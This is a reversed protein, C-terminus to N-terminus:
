PEEKLYKVLENIITDLSKLYFRNEYSFGTKRFNLVLCSGIFLEFQFEIQSCCQYDIQRIRSCHGTHSCRTCCGLWSRGIRCTCRNRKVVFYEVHLFQLLRLPQPPLTRIHRRLLPLSRIWTFQGFVFFGVKILCKM